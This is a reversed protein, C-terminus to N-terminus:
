SLLIPFTELPFDAELNLVGPIYSVSVFINRALCWQWIELALHDMQLFAIGRMNNIYAIALKFTFDSRVSIHVDKM